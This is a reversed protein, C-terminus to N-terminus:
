STGTIEPTRVRVWRRMVWLAFILIILGIVQAARFGGPWIVSDGRFAELFVRAASSLVVLLLFNLGDGVVGIPRRQVVIFIVMAALIEYVQSPHRYENWLYVAWPLKVPAGYADGSLFHAFGLFVMFLALGPSLIDLTLRLPLKKRWGYLAAAVLGIVLGDFPALTNGNTSLLSFPNALYINLYRAAYALRAGVIGAALGLYILNFIIDVPLKWHDAEKEALWSGIWIGVLLALVPAQMLVPGLHLYPYM